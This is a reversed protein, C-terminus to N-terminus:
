RRAKSMAREMTVTMGLINIVEGREVTLEDFAAKLMDISQNIWDEDKTMAFFCDDVTM